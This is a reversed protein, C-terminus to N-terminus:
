CFSSLLPFARDPQSLKKFNMEAKEFNYEYLFVCIHYWGLMNGCQSLIYSFGFGVFHIKKTHLLLPPSHATILLLGVTKIVHGQRHAGARGIFGKM